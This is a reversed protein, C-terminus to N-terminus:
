SSSITPEFGVRAVRPRLETACLVRRDLSLDRTRPGDDGGTTVTTYRFCGPGHSGLRRNSAPRDGRLVRVSLVPSSRRSYGPHRASHHNSEVRGCRPRLEPPLAGRKCRPPAPEVGATEMHPRLVLEALTCGRRAGPLQTSGTFGALVARSPRPNSDRRSWKAETTDVALVRGKYPRPAPEVGAPPEVLGTTYRSCSSSWGRRDPNSGQRAQRRPGSRSPNDPSPRKRELPADATRSRVGVACWSRSVGAAPRFPV